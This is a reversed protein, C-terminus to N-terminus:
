LCIIAVNDPRNKHKIGKFSNKLSGLDFCHLDHGTASMDSWMRQFTTTQLM